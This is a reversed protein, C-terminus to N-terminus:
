RVWVCLPGAVRFGAQRAAELTPGQEYGVVPLDPHLGTVAQRVSAWLRDEPVGASFVNSIGAAGGGAYVIAGAVITDDQRCALVSCRPDRLLGPLFVRGDSDSGAWAAEWDSLEDPGAVQDWSLADDLPRDPGGDYVIWSAEVTLGFGASALNLRAFSDKVGVPRGPATIALVEAATVEPLLTIANPYLRLRHGPSTWLRSSFAGPHGHSRCVAECWSVNNAVAAGLLRM